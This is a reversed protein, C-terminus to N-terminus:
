FREIKKANEEKLQDITFKIEREEPELITLSTENSKIKNVIEAM